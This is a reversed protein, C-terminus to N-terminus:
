KRSMKAKGFLLLSVALGTILLSKTLAKKRVDYDAQSNWGGHISTGFKAPSFLNGSTEAAPEAQKLYAAIIKQTISGTLAPSLFQAIKLLTTVGGVTVARKPYNATKVIARALRQPDYVPPAPKIIRGTYNAAHQIGPSDLFAPYMNCVHINKYGTLEAQLAEGFGRLGFKSASYGVSYPVPIFGGVSINNILVGYQQQKFYPLVAHAGHIYGMLNISIVQDHIEVPTEDFNGAALVGANNVWIDISGGFEAATAALEVMDDANTVDTKVCIAIGGGDNCLEKVDELAELNRAALVIKAGHRAFELAIARGAGSSAGTIVVTKEKLGYTAPTRKSPTSM